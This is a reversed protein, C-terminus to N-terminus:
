GLFYQTGYLRGATYNKYAQAFAGSMVDVIDDQLGHPFLQLTPMHQRIQLFFTVSWFCLNRERRCAKELNIATLTSLVSTSYQCLCVFAARSM